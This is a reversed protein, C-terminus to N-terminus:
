PNQNGFSGRPDQDSKTPDHSSYLNPGAVVDGVFTRVGVIRVVDRHTAGGLSRQLVWGNAKVRPLSVRDDFSKGFRHGGRPIGSEGPTRPVVVGVEHEAPVLARNFLDSPM